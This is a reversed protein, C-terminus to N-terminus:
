IWGDTRIYMTADGNNSIYSISGIPVSKGDSLLLEVECNGCINILEAIEKITNSALM